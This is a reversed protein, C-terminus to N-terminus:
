ARGTGRFATGALVAPEPLGRLGASRPEGRDLPREKHGPPGSRGRRLGPGNGREGDALPVHAPPAEAARNVHASRDAM